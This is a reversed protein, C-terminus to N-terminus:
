VKRPRGPRLTRALERCQRLVEADAIARGMSDRGLTVLGRAEWARVTSVGRGIARALHKRTLVYASMISTKVM